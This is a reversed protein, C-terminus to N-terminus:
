LKSFIKNMDEHILLTAKYDQNTSDKNIIVLNKGKYYHIFSAAPYVNLSTGAIILLDATGISYIAQQISKYNLEEEYLVVDPKILNQCKKCYPTGKMNLIDKLSYFSHCNVCYNRHVSGHLEIVNKSGALQHLGDINQTIITLNKEKELRALYIHTPNPKADPYLMKKKYFDYFMNTHYIFFTHSLMEEYSVGYESKIAYLGDKSRFDPIGSGTSVGAGGFFVINNSHQILEKLKEIHDM